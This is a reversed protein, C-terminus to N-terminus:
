GKQLARPAAYPHEDDLSVPTVVVQVSRESAPKALDAYIATLCMPCPHGSAYIACGDLRVNGISRCAARIAQIEAHATPDGSTMVENVGTALVVDDRVLVAGFPRGGHQRVNGLALAIAQKLFDDPGPLGTLAM